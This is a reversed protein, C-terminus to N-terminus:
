PKDMRFEPKLADNALEHDAGHELLYKAIEQENRLNIYAQTLPTGPISRKCQHNVDAGHEVLFKVSELQHYVVAFHLPSAREAECKVSVGKEEVLKKMEDVNGEEIAWYFRTLITGSSESSESEYDSM